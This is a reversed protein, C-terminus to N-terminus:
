RKRHAWRPSPHRHTGIADEIYAGVIVGIGFFAPTYPGWPHPTKPPDPSPNGSAIGQLGGFM